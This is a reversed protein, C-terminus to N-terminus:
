AKKFKTKNTSTCSPPFEKENLQNSWTRLTKSKEKQFDYGLKIEIFIIMTIHTIFMIIPLFRTLYDNIKTESNIKDHFLSVIVFSSTFMPQIKSPGSNQYRFEQSNFTKVCGSPSNAVVFWLVLLWVSRTASFTPKM